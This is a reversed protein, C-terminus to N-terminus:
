THYIVFWLVLDTGSDGGRLERCISNGRRRKGDKKKNSKKNGLQKFAQEVEISGGIMQNREDFDNSRIDFSSFFYHSVRSKLSGSPDMAPGMVPIM